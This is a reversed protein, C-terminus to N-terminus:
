PKKASRSQVASQVASAYGSPRTPSDLGKSTKSSGKANLGAAKDAMQKITGDLNKKWARCQSENETSFYWERFPTKICFAYRGAEVLGRFTIDSTALGSITIMGKHEQLDASTFYHVEGNDFLIVWRKKDSKFLGPAKKTLWSEYVKNASTQFAGVAPKHGVRFVDPSTPPRVGSLSPRPPYEEGVVPLHEGAHLLDDGDMEDGTDADFETLRAPKAPSEEGDHEKEESPEVKLDGFAGKLQSLAEASPPTPVPPPPLLAAEAELAAVSKAMSRAATRDELAASSKAATRQEVADWDTEEGEEIIEAWGENQWRQMTINRLEREAQAYSLGEPISRGTVERYSDTLMEIMDTDWDDDALGPTGEGVPDEITVKGMRLSNRSKRIGRRLKDVPATTSRVLAGPGTDADPLDDGHEMWSAVTRLRLAAYGEELTMSAPMAHGTVERFSDKLMQLLDDDDDDGEGAAASEQVASLTEKEEDGETVSPMQGAEEALDALAAPRERAGQGPLASLRKSSLRKVSLRSSPMQEEGGEPLGLGTFRKMSGAPRPVGSVHKLSERQIRGSIGMLQLSRRTLRKKEALAEQEANKATESM